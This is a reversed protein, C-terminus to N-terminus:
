STPALHPTDGIVGALNLQNFVELVIDSPNTLSIAGNGATGLRKLWLLVQAGATDLDEVGSLDAELIPEGQWEAQILAVAGAAEYITLDGALKLLHKAREVRIM